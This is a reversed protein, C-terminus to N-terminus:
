LKSFDFKSKQKELDRNTKWIEYESYINNLYMKELFIDEKYEDPLRGLVRFVDSITCNLLEDEQIKIITLGVQFLIYEGHLLYLDFIRRLLHYELTFSFINGFWSVLYLETSIDLNKFHRSVKPIRNELLEDFFKVRIDIYNENKKYYQLLNTSCILNFINYFSAYEDKCVLIFIFSFAVLSKNYMIDPRMLFFVRTIIYVQSLIHNIDDKTDKLLFNDKINIIDLLIQSITYKDNNIDDKINLLTSDINNNKEYDQLLQIFDIKAILNSYAKYLNINIGCPNGILSTWIKGRIISPLGLSYFYLFENYDFYNNETLKNIAETLFSNITEISFLSTKKSELLGNKSTMVIQRQKKIFNIKNQAKYFLYNGYKEWNHIVHTKWINKIKNKVKKIIDKNDINKKNLGKNHIILSKL